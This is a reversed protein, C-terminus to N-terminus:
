WLRNGKRRRKPRTHLMRFYLPFVNTITVFWFMICLKFIPNNTIAKKRIANDMNDSTM